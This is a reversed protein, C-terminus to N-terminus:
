DYEKPLLTFSPFFIPVRLDVRVAGGGGGRDAPSAQLLYADRLWGSRSTQMGPMGIRKDSM